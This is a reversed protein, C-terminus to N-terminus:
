DGEWLGADLDAEDRTKGEGVGLLRQLLARESVCTMFEESNSSGWGSLLCLAMFGDATSPCLAMSEDATCGDALSPCLAM